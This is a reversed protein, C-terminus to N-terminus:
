RPCDTPNAEAWRRDVILNQGEVYGLQRLRDWFASIMPGAM